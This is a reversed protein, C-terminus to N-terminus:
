INEFLKLFEKFDIKEELIPAADICVKTHPSITIASHTSGKMAFYPRHLMAYGSQNLLRVDATASKVYYNQNFNKSLAPLENNQTNIM